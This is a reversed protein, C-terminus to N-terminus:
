HTKLEPWHGKFIFVIHIFVFILSIIQISIVSYHASITFHYFNKRKKKIAISSNTLKQRLIQRM